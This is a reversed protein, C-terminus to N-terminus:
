QCKTSEPLQLSHYKKYLFAIPLEGVLAFNDWQCLSLHFNM